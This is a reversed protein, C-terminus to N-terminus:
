PFLEGLRVTGSVSVKKWEWPHRSVLSNVTYCWIGNHCIMAGQLTSHLLVYVTVWWCGLWTLVTPVTLVTTTERQTTHCDLRQWYYQGWQTEVWWFLNYMKCSPGPCIFRCMELHWCHIWMLCAKGGNDTQSRRAECWSRSVVTPTLVTVFSTSKWFNYKVKVVCIHLM